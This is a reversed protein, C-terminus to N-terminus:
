MMVTEGDTVPAPDFTTVGLKVIAIGTICLWSYLMLTTALLQAPILVGASIVINMTDHLHMDQM